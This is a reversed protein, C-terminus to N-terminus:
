AGGNARARIAAVESDFPGMWEFVEDRLSLVYRTRTIYGTSASGHTEASEQVEFLREREDAAAKRLAKVVDEPTLEYTNGNWWADLLVLADDYYKDDSM